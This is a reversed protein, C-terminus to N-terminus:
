GTIPPAAGGEAMTGLRLRMDRIWISDNEFVDGALISTVSRRLFTRPNEAFLYQLLPGRYFAGVASVFTELGTRTDQVWKAFAAESTDGATIALDIVKAARWASNMAIHAGSSFLPDVFGGADGMSIWSHGSMRGVRYSYDAEVKASWLKKANKTLAKATPAQDIAAQLMEDAGGLHRHEKVWESAVVAGVSTRGDLFPIFWFWGGSWAGDDGRPRSEFIVIDIDGAEKGEPRPIGEYHAYFASKDLRPIKSTTRTHHALLANRGSADIVVKAGLEHSKGEPDEAVVGTAREGDMRVKKVTWGERVDAGLKDAHRLLMDDFVSREVQFAHQWKEDFANAFVFRAKRGDRDDHFRAGYKEIFRARVDPLVGIDDLVYLSQPLLSEGLHFRPFRARELVAVSRGLKRLKAAAVSGAPGGGIVIVDFEM